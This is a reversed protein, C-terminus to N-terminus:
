GFVPPPPPPFEGLFNSGKVELNNQEEEEDEEEEDDIAFIEGSLPRAPREPQKPQLNGGQERPNPEEPQLGPLNEDGPDGGVGIPTDDGNIDGTLVRRRSPSGPETLLPAAYKIKNRELVHSEVINRVNAAYRASAPMLQDLMQTMATDLWKYYDLYKQLDVIDNQVRRFFIERLKEMQKYNMRYKNVPEGILNNFDQISAFLALMRSSISRYMSKEIAFFSSSPKKFTGFVEDDTSLVKVM